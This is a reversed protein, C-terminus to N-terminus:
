LIGVLQGHMLMNMDDQRCKFVTINLGITYLPVFYAYFIELLM